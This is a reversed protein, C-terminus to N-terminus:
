FSEEKELFQAKFQPEPDIFKKWPLGSSEQIKKTIFLRMKCFDFVYFQSWGIPSSYHEVVTPYGRETITVDALEAACISNKYIMKNGRLLILENYVECFGQDTEVLQKKHLQLIISGIKVEDKEVIEQSKLTLSSLLVVSIVALKLKKLYTFIRLKM